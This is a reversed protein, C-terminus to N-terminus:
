FLTKRTTTFELHIYLIHVSTNLVSLVKVFEANVRQPFAANSEFLPGIVNFPPDLTELNDVFVVKKFVFLIFFFTM